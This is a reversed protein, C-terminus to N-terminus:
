CLAALFAERYRPATFTRARQMAARQVRARLDRDSDLHAVLRRAGAADGPRILFGDVGDNVIEPFAGSRFCIVIKGRLMMELVALGFAEDRSPFVFIDGELAVEDPSRWGLDREAPVAVPHACGRSSGAWRARAGFCELFLPDKYADYRGFYVVHGARAPVPEAPESDVLGYYVVRGKMPPLPRFPLNLPSEDFSRRLFESVFLATEVARLRSLDRLTDVPSRRLFRHPSQVHWALRCGREALPLALQRVAEISDLVVQSGGPIAGARFDRHSDDYLAHGRNEWTRWGPHFVKRVRPGDFNAWLDRAFSSAHLTCARPLDSLLTKWATTGGGVGQATVATVFHLEEM